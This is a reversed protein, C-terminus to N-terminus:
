DLDGAASLRQRRGVLLKVALKDEILDLFRHAQVSSVADDQQQVGIAPSVAAQSAAKLAVGGRLGVVVARLQLTGRLEQLIRNWAEGHIAKKQVELADPGKFLTRSRGGSTKGQRTSIRKVVSRTYITTNGNKLVYCSNSLM